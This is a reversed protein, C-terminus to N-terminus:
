ADAVPASPADVFQQRSEKAADEYAHLPTHPVQHHARRVNDRRSLFPAVRFRGLDLSSIGLSPM